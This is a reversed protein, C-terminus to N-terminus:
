GDTEKLYNGAAKRVLRRLSEIEKDDLSEIAARLGDFKFKALKKLEQAGPQTLSMRVIRRDDADSRRAVLGKEVLPDALQTVASKTVGLYDATEKVSALNHHYLLHLMGVQAHSLGLYKWAAGLAPRQCRALNEIISQIQEERKM